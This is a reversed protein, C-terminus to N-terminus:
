LIIKRVLEDSGLNVKVFYLGRPIDAIDYQMHHQGPVQAGSTLQKVVRGTVDNLIITMESSTNSKMDINLQHNVAFIKLSVGSINESIGSPQEVTFQGVMGMSVHFNCQYHYEGAMNAVYTYMPTNQNIQQDWPGAGLPVVTSTTTHNGNVWMWMVTDGVNITFNNPTFVNDSVGVSVVTARSLFAFSLIAFLIYIKKM